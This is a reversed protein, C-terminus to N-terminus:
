HGQPGQGAATHMMEMTMNDTMNKGAICEYARMMQDMMELQSENTATSPDELHMEHMEIAQELWFQACNLRAQMSSINQDMWMACCTRNMTDNGMMCHMTTNNMSYNWMMCPMICPKTTNNMSYNWTMCPITTNNMSYNWMMCPTTNNMSYNWMMCHHGMDSHMMAENAPHVGTGSIQVTCKQNDTCVIRSEQYIMNGQAMEDGAIPEALSLVVVAMLALLLAPKIIGSKIM